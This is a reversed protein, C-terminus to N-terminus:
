AKLCCQRIAHHVPKSSSSFHFSEKENEKGLGLSIGIESIGKLSIEKLSIGKESNGVGSGGESDGESGRIPITLVVPDQTAVVTNM